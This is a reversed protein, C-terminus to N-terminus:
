FYPRSLFGYTYELYERVLPHGFRGISWAVLWADQDTSHISDMTVQIKPKPIPYGISYNHMIQHDDERYDIFPLSKVARYTDIRFTDGEINHQLNRRLRAITAGFEAAWIGIAKPDSVEGLLTKMLRSKFGYDMRYERMINTLINRSTLIIADLVAEPSDCVGIYYGEFGTGTVFFPNRNKRVVEWALYPHEYRRSAKVLDALGINHLKLWWYFSDAFPIPGSLCMFNSSM